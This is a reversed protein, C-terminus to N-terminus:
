TFFTRGIISLSTQGLARYVEALFKRADADTQDITFLYNGLQAAWALERKAFSQKAAQLVKKRGGMLAVTRQAEEVPPLKHLTSVNRDFWGMQHYFAAPTFWPVEGYAQANNPFDALHKPQYVFYRLEDPGLGHM